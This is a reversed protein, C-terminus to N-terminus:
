GSIERRSRELAPLSGRDVKGNANLPFTELAVFTSPIMYEPLLRRLRERLEWAHIECRAAPIVYAVLRKTDADDEVAVVVAERIAPDAVIASEIEGLEIRYGRVKVQTDIRGLFELRGDEEARVLDGTRYLRAGPSGSFPDPIFRQATLAPRNWYGRALGAGGLYLEGVQGPDAPTGDDAVVYAAVNAMPYGIPVYAGRFDTATVQLNTAWVTAETPGYFNWLPIKWALLDAALERPFAEGGCVILRVNSSRLDCDPSASVLFNRLASPIQNLITVRERRLLDYFAVPSQRVEGPVVVLRGGSCLCGWIEWVSFDFGFSHVVTWVDSSGFGFAGACTTVLNVVSRHEVAVGKPQGTSGSTYIVYMLNDASPSSELNAEDEPRPARDLELVLRVADGPPLRDATSRGCLLVRVGSDRLMFALRDPPYSPDLPVYAGGAKLIALLGVIMEASREVCIGVPIEPGVGLRVLQRALRNARANLDRYSLRREGYVVALSDPHRAVQMEVLRSICRDDLELGSGEKLPASDM